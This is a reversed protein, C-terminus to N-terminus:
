DTGRRQLRASLILIYLPAVVGQTATESLLLVGGGARGFILGLILISAASVAAASWAVSNAKRQGARRLFFAVIAPTGLFAVAWLVFSWRLGLGGNCVLDRGGLGYTQWTCTTRSASLFAGVHITAGFTVGLLVRDLTSRKNGRILATSSASTKLPKRNV